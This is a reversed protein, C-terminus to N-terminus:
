KGNACKAAIVHPQNVASFATKQRKNTTKAPPATGKKLCCHYRLSIIQSIKKIFTPYQLKFTKQKLNSLLHM